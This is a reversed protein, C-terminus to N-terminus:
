RHNLFSKPSAHSKVKDPEPLPVGPPFLPLICYLLPPANPPNPLQFPLVTDIVPAIDAVLLIIDDAATPVVPPPPDIPIVPPYIYIGLMVAGDAGTDPTPYKYTAPVGPCSFIYKLFEVCAAYSKVNIPVPSVLGIVVLPSMIYPSVPPTAVLIPIPAVPCNRVTDAPPIGAHVEYAYVKGKAASPVLPPTCTLEVSPPNFITPSYTTKSILLNFM